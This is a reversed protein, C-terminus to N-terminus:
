AIKCYSGNTVSHLYLLFVIVIAQPMVTKPYKKKNVTSKERAETFVPASNTLLLPVECSVV